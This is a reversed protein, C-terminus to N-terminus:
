CVAPTQRFGTFRHRRRRERFQFAATQDNRQGRCAEVLLVALRVAPLVVEVHERGLAAAAGSGDQLVVDRGQVGQPVGLAEDAPHTEGGGGGNM